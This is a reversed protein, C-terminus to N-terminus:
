QQPSLIVPPHGSMLTRRKTWTSLICCQPLYEMNIRIRLAAQQQLKHGRSVIGDEGAELEMVAGQRWRAQALVPVNGVEAAVPTTKMGRLAIRTLSKGQVLLLMKPTAAERPQM